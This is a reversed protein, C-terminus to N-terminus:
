AVESNGWRVSQGLSLTGAGENTRVAAAQLRVGDATRLLLLMRLLQVEVNVVRRTSLVSCCSNKDNHDRNDACNHCTKGAVTRVLFSPAVVFFRVPLAIDLWM